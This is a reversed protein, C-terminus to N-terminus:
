EEIEAGTTTGNADRVLTITKKRRHAKRLRSGFANVETAFQQAEVSAAEHYKAAEAAADQTRRQGEILTARMLEDQTRPRFHESIQGLIEIAESGSLNTLTEPRKWDRNM